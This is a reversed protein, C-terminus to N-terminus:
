LRLCIRALCLPLLDRDHWMSSMLLPLLAPRHLSPIMDACRSDQLEHLMCAKRGSHLGVGAVHIGTDLGVCSGGEGSGELYLMCAAFYM